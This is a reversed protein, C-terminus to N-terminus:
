SWNDKGPNDKMWQNDKITWRISSIMMYICWMLAIVIFTIGGIIGVKDLLNTM